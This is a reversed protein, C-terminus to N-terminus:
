FNADFQGAGTAKGAYRMNKERTRDWNKNHQTFTGGKMANTERTVHGGTFQCLYTVDAIHPDNGVLFSPFDGHIKWFQATEKVSYTHKIRRIAQDLRINFM